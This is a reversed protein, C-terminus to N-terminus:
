ALRTAKLQHCLACQRALPENAAYCLSCRWGATAAPSAFKLRGPVAAPPPPARDTRAGGTYSERWQALKTSVSSPTVARRDAGARAVPPAPAKAAGRLAGTFAGSAASAPTSPTV